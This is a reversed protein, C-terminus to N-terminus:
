QSSLVEQQSFYNELITTYQKVKPSLSGRSLGSAKALDMVTLKVDSKRAFAGIFAVVKQRINGRPHIINAWVEQMPKIFNDGLQLAPTYIEILYAGQKYEEGKYIAIFEIGARILTQETVGTVKALLEFRVSKTEIMMYAIAVELLKRKLDPINEFVQFPGYKTFLMYFDVIQDFNEIFFSTYVDTDGEGDNLEQIIQRLKKQVGRRMAEEPTDDPLLADVPAGTDSEGDDENEGDTDDKAGPQFDSDTDGEIDTETYLQRYCVKCEYYPPTYLVQGNLAGCDSDDNGILCEGPQLFIKSVQYGGIRRAM